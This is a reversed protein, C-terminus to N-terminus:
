QCTSWVNTCEDKKKVLSEGGADRSLYGAQGLKKTVGCRHNDQCSWGISRNRVPNSYSAEVDVAVTEIRVYVPLNLDGM